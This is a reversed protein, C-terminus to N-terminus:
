GHKIKMILIAITLGLSIGNAAILSPSELMIGYIFWLFIGTSIFCYMGLSISKTHKERFVKIAQPVYAITTFIAALFGIIEPNM